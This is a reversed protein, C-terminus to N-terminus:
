DEGRRGEASVPKTRQFVQVREVGDDDRLLGLVYDSGIELLQLGRPVRVQSVVQGDPRFVFWASLSDDSRDYLKVWLHDEADAALEEFAPMHKPVPADALVRELLKRTRLFPERTLRTTVFTARDSRTVTRRAARFEIVRPDGGFRDYSEVVGRDNSGVFIRNRGFAALTARGFPQEVFGGARKSFYHDTGEYAGLSDARMTHLDLQVLAAPTRVLGGERLILKPQNILVFLRTTGVCGVPKEFNFGVPLNKLEVFEGSLSFYSLRNLGADQVVVLSDSCRGVWAIYRFEGPGSGKRGGAAIQAGTSDFLRVQNSGADALLVHRSNTLTAGVVGFLERERSGGRVGITFVADPGITDTAVHPAGHEPLVIAQRAAVNRDCAGTTV